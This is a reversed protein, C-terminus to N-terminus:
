FTGGLSMGAYGPAVAPTLLRMGKATTTNVPGTPELFHWLLGGLLVVGGAGLIVGGILPQGKHRGAKDQREKYAAADEGPLRACTENNADCGAPLKPSTLLVVLGTVAAVGGIGVVVWPAATHERVEAAPPMTTSPATTAPATTATTSPTAAPPAAAIQKKLNEIKTKHTQADPSDKVRDLYAELAKVAEPKDGKLEYSRSIIILLDHKSCDRRYAERFQAIAGDYNGEDYLARGANYFAHAEESKGASVSSAACVPPYSSSASSPQALAPVSFAVTGLLGLGLVFSRRSM